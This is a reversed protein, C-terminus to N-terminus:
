LGRWRQRKAQYQLQGVSRRLGFIIETQRQITEKAQALEYSLATNREILEFAQESFHQAQQRVVSLEDLIPGKM